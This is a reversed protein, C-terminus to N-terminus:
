LGDGLEGDAEDEDSESTAVGKPAEVIDSDVVLM